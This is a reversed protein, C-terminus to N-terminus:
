MTTEATCNDVDKLKMVIFLIGGEGLQGIEKGEEIRITMERLRGM